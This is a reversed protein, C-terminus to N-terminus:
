WPRHVHTSIHQFINFCTSISSKFPLKIHSKITIWHSKLPIYESGLWGHKSGPPCTSLVMFNSILKSVCHHHSYFISLDHNQSPLHKFSQISYGIIILVRKPYHYTVREGVGQWPEWAACFPFLSWRRRWSVVNSGSSGHLITSDNQRWCPPQHTRWSSFESM